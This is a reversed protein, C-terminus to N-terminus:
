LNQKDADYGNDSDVVVVVVVVTEANAASAGYGNYINIYRSHYYYNLLNFDSQFNRYLGTFVQCRQDCEM